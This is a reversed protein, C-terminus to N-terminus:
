YQRVVGIVVGCIEASPVRIPEMASNAPQLRIGDKERYFRKLTVEGDPLLAVVTEGNRASSRRDLLVVDGDRIADDIMSNGRVRLAYVDKGEPILDALDLEEPDELAEIPAGAAVRGLVPVLLRRRSDSAAGRREVPRLARSIGPAAKRIAGKRELERVHGFVTVRNVGLHQAIEELTPSIGHRRRFGSLFDLIERQRRTLPIHTM